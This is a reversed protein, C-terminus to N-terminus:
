FGEWALTIKKRAQWRFGGFYLTNKNESSFTMRDFLFMLNSIFKKLPQLLTKVTMKM